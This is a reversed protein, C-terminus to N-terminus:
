GRLFWGGVPLTPKPPLASKVALKETWADVDFDIHTDEPLEGLLAVMRETEALTQKVDQLAAEYSAANTM